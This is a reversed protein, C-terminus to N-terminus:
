FQYRISGLLTYDSYNKSQRTDLDARLELLEGLKASVGVGLKLLDKEPAQLFMTYNDTGGILTYGLSEENANWEHLWYARLEPKITINGIGTYWAMSGGLSSQLYFTSFSDINRGVADSSEEQYADQNYYNGLLSAQPTYILYETSIEKGGGFYIAVNQADYEAKTDFATGLTSEISSGGYVLSGDAFWDKTGASAYLAAYITKTDTSATNTKDATASGSGGAVGVLIGNAVSVDAGILFGRLSADYGNFGDSSDQTGKTGYGTLWGQLQQDAMHPGEAGVPKDPTTAASAVGMRARTNDARLTLQNAVSQVGMNIVNNAPTSSQKEGYYNEMTANAENADMQSLIHLMEEAEAVGNTAMVGIEDAIGKLQGELGAVDGLSRKIFNDLVIYTNDLGNSVTINFGLLLNTEINDWILGTTATQGGITITKAKVISVVNSESVGDDYVFISSDEAFEANGGVELNPLVQNSSVGVELKSFADQEYSGVVKVQSSSDIKLLGNHTNFLNNGVDILGGSLAYLSNNGSNNDEEASILLDNGVILTSNSGGVTLTNNQSAFGIYLNTSASATAGNTITLSNNDSEFGVYLDNTSSWSSGTGDLVFNLEGDVMNTGELLGLLHLASGTEFVINTATGTVDAFNWDETKLTGGSKINLTNNTGTGIAINSQQAYLTGGNSVNVSNNSGNNSGIALGNTIYLLSDDGTVTVVNNSVGDYTGVFLDQASVVAGDVLDLTNISNSAGIYIANAVNLMANTTELHIFNKIEHQNTTSGLYLNGDINATGGYVAFRNSGGEKGVILDGAVNLRTDADRQLYIYNDGVAEGIVVDGDVSVTGGDRIALISGGGEQGVTLNQQIDLTAGEGVIALNGTTEVRDDDVHGTKGTAEETRGIIFAGAVTNTSGTVANTGGTHYYRNNASASGLIFNNAASVRGHDINFENSGGNVGVTIDQSVNLTGNSGIIAQNGTALSDDGIRLEGSIVVQGGDEATLRNNDGKGGVSVTNQVTFVSGNGSVALENNRSSEGEGLQLIGTTLGTAGNTFTLSNNSTSKGIIVETSNTWFATNGSLENDLIVNLSSDIKNKELTLEGGVALSAKSDMTVGLDDISGTDVDGGIKLTGNQYIRIEDDDDANVLNIDNTTNVFVSGNKVLLSNNTSIDSGVQLMGEVVLAAGRDITLVNNSGGLGIYADSAVYLESDEGLLDAQGSDNTGYGVYLYDTDLTSGYNISLAAEGDTNGVVLGGTSIGNTDSTGAIVMSGGTIDLANNTSTERNGLIVYEAQITSNNTVVLTNDPNFYGIYLSENYTVDATNTHSTGDDFSIALSPTATFAATLVSTCLLIALSRSNCTYKM